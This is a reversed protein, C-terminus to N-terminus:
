KGTICLLAPCYQQHIYTVLQQMLSNLSKWLTVGLVVLHHAWNFNSHLFDAFGLIYQFRQIWIFFGLSTPTSSVTITQAKWIKERLLQHSSSTITPYFMSYHESLFTQVIKRPKSRFVRPHSWYATLHQAPWPTCLNGLKRRPLYYKRFLLPFFVWRQKLFWWM